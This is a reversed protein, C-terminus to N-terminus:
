AGPAPLSCALILADERGRGAPYYNPRLGVRNFGHKEYLAIARENSARVELYLEDAQDAVLAMIAELLQNGLGQGQYEPAVVVNLLDAQRGGTSALAYGALEGDPLEMVLALYGAKLCDSFHVPQWPHSHARLEIANVAPLDEPSMPRLTVPSKMPSEHTPNM